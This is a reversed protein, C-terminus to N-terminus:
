TTFRQGHKVLRRLTRQRVDQFFCKFSKKERQYVQLYNKLFRARDYTSVVKLHLFNRGLEDLNKIRRRRSIWGTSRIADLDILFLREGSGNERPAVLINRATLDGHYVGVRHLCALFEAAHSIFKDKEGRTLRNESFNSNVYDRLSQSNQVELTAVIHESKFVSVRRQIYFVPQPTPIGRTLLYRGTRWSKQARNVQLLTQIFLKLGACRYKKVYMAGKEDPWRYVQSTQSVKVPKPLDKEQLLFSRLHGLFKESHYSSIMWGKYGAIRVSVARDDNASVDGYPM